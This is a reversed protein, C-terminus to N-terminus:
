LGRVPQPFPFGQQTTSVDNMARTNYTDTDVNRKNKTINLVKLCYPIDWYTPESMPVNYNGKKANTVMDDHQMKMERNVRTLISRAIKVKDKSPLASMYKNIKDMNDQGNKWTMFDPSDQYYWNQMRFLPELAKEVQMYDQENVIYQKLGM